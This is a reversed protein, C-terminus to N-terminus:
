VEESEYPEIEAGCEPCRDNCMCSWSDDWEVGPRVPCDDHRYHNLYWAGEDDEFEQRQAHAPALREQLSRMVSWVGMYADHRELEAVSGKFNPYDIAAVMAAAAKKVKARSVFARFRYDAEPTEVVDADPFVREVDGRVRARVLLRRADLRDQVISLAADNLFIWM